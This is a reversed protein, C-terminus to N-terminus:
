CRYKYGKKIKYKYKSKHLIKHAVGFWEPHLERLEDITISNAGPENLDSKPKTSDLYVKYVDEVTPSECVWSGDGLRKFMWPVQGSNIFGQQTKALLDGLLIPDKPLKEGFLQEFQEFNYRLLQEM